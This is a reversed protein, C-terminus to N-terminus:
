GQPDTLEFRIPVEMLTAVKRGGKMGPRFKWKKVGNIAPTEFAHDTADVIKPDRVNGDADVIFSLRVVGGELGQNQPFQPAPQAVAQPIRDLDALKFIDGGTGLGSGGRGHNVPITMSRLANADVETKPRLDITQTFDTLSVSTPVEALQPVAVTPSSEEALETPKDETEEPVVPPMEFQVVQGTAQPAAAGRRAPKSNFGYFMAAHLSLAAVIAVAFSWHTKPASPYRWSGAPAPTMPLATSAGRPFHPRAPRSQRLANTTKM